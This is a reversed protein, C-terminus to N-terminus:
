FTIKKAPQQRVHSLEKQRATNARVQNQSAKLGQIIALQEEPQSVAGRPNRVRLLHLSHRHHETRTGRTITTELRGAFFM